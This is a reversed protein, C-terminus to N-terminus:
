PFVIQKIHNCAWNICNPNLLLLPNFVGAGNRVAEDEVEAQTFLQIDVVEVQPQSDYGGVQNTPTQAVGPVAM